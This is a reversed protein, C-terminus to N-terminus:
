KALGMDRLQSLSVPQQRPLYEICANFYSPNGALLNYHTHGHINVLGFLEKEHMPIHTLWMGYRKMPGRIAYFHPLYTRAGLDDHNGMILNKRGPVKDLMYLKKPDMAVDGLIWWVTTKTPRVSLMREIVWKDHEDVNSGGRYAGLHAANATYELVKRHGLHLDSIFLVQSM